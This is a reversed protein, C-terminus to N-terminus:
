ALAGSTNLHRGNRKILTKIQRSEEQIPPVLAMLSNGRGSINLCHQLIDTSRGGYMPGSRVFVYRVTCKLTGLTAVTPDFAQMQLWSAASCPGLCTPLRRGITHVQVFCRESGDFRAAYAAFRRQPASLDTSNMITRLVSPPRHSRIHPGQRGTM